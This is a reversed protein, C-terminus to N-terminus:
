YLVAARLRRLIERTTRGFSDDLQQVEFSGAFVNCEVLIPGEPRLAIDWGISLLDSALAEHARRCLAKAADFGPLRAGALDRSAGPARPVPRIAERGHLMAHTFGPRLAGSELDAEVLLGGRSVNDVHGDSAGIRFYAIHCAPADSDWTTTIRLTCLPARPPLLTMLDPHNEIWRQVILREVGPIRDLEQPGDVRRVGLGMDEAPDKVIFPGRMSRAIELSLEEVCPLDKERARLAFTRKNEIAYSQSRTAAYHWANFIAVFMDARRERVIADSFAMGPFASYLDPRLLANRWQTRRDGKHRRVLLAAIAPWAYLAALAVEKRRLLHVPLRVGSRQVYEGFTDGEITCVRNWLAVVQALYWYRLEDESVPCPGAVLARTLGAYFRLAESMLAPYSTGRTTM